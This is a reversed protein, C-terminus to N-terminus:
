QRSLEYTPRLAWSLDGVNTAYVHAGFDPSEKKAPTLGSCLGGFVRNSGVSSPSRM